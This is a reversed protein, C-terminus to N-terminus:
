GRKGAKGAGHIFCANERTYMATEQALAMRVARNLHAVGQLTEGDVYQLPAREIRAAAAADFSAADLLGSAHPDAPM